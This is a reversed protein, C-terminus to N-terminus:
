LIDALSKQASGRPLPKQQGEHPAWGTLYIIEVTAPIRGEGDGFKKRYYRGAEIFLGRRALTKRRTALANTEGMGRLDTMLRFIDSYTATLVDADVVPLAFGARQMLAAMDRRGAMPAVRPSVGGCINMEAEMLSERLERLTEGGFLAGIFLGDPKLARRIQTLAGPLDNFAHLFPSCLILDCSQPAIDLFENEDFDAYGVARRSKFDRRIDRLRESFSKEVRARLFGDHGLSGARARARLIQARDFISICHADNM